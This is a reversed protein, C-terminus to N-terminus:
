LQRQFVPDGAKAPSSLQAHVFRVFAGSVGGEEEWGSDRAM